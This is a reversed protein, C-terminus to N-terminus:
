GPKPGADLFVSIHGWHSSHNDAIFLLPNEPSCKTFNKFYILWKGLLDETVWGSEFCDGIYGVPVDNILHEAMRLRKFIFMPLIFSETASMCCVVTTNTGREGSTGVAVRAKGRKGLFKFDQLQQFERRM